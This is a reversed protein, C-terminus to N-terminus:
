SLITVTTFMHKWSFTKNWCNQSQHLLLHSLNWMSHLILVLILCSHYFPSLTGWIGALFQPQNDIGFELTAQWVCYANVWKHWRPFVSANKRLHVQGQFVSSELTIATDEKSLSIHLDLGVFYCCGPYLLFPHIEDWCFSIRTFFVPLDKIRTHLELFTDATEQKSTAWITNIDYCEDLLSDAVCMGRLTKLLQCM